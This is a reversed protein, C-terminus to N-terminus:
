QEYFPLFAFTITTIIFLLTLCGLIFPSALGWVGCILIALILVWWVLIYVSKCATRRGARKAQQAAADSRSGTHEVGQRKRLDANLRAQKGM